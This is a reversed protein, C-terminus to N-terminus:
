RKTTFRVGEDLKKDLARFQADTMSEITLGINGVGNPSRMPAPPKRRNGGKMQRAVDYFDMEGSIVKQKIEENNLFEATVDIGREERIADAQHTLMDIRAQVAPDQGSTFQGNAQRPQAARQPAAQTPQGNRYRLIEKALEIDKVEGKRVMEQADMELLRERIPAYQADMEARINEREQALAKQVAKDVRQRIWGPESTGQAGQPQRQEAPQETETEEAEVDSIDTSTEAEEQVEELGEFTENEPMNEYTDM